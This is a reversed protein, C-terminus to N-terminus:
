GEDKDDKEILVSDVVLTEDTIVYIEKVEMKDIITVGDVEHSELVEFIARIM